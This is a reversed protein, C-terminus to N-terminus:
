RLQYQEYCYVAWDAIVLVGIIIFLYLIDEFKGDRGANDAEGSLVFNTQKVNLEREDVPYCSYLYATQRINGITATVAYEGVETVQYESLTESTDLYDEEGSPSTVMLSTCGPLVNLTVTEGSYATTEDVITPFTYNILNNLLARGNYSVPFNSHNFDFAFVVERNGHANTGAFVIPDNNCYM